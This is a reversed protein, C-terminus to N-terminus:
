FLTLYAHGSRIWVFELDIAVRLLMIKFIFNQPAVGVGGGRM